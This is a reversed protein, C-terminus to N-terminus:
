VLNVRLRDLPNKSFHITRQAKSGWAHLEKAEVTLSPIEIIQNSVERASGAFRRVRVAHFFKAKGREGHPPFNIIKRAM